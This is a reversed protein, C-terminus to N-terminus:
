WRQKMCVSYSQYCCKDEQHARSTCITMYNM